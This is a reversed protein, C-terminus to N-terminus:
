PGEYRAEDQGLRSTPSGVDKSLVPTVLKRVGVITVFIIEPIQAIAFGMLIGIYGGVYGVLAQFDVEKKQVILKFRPSLVRIVICWWNDWYDESFKLMENLDLTEDETEGVELELSDIERCPRLAHSELAFRFRARKMEEKTKCINWCTCNTPQDPTKCGVSDLHQKLIIDDYNKWNPICNNQNFKYRNSVATMGKINFSLWYNSINDRKSWQRLISHYASFTQNPYHYLAVFSGAQPRVKEPFIDRKMYLRVFLVNQNILEIGFCKVFKGWSEFSHTQHIRVWQNNISQTWISTGNGLKMELSIVHESINTTVKGYDIKTMNEQYYEGLLFKQYFADSLNPGFINFHKSDFSQDFCFSMVPPFDDESEFYSRTEIVSIDEDRFYRQFWEQVYYITVILCGVKFIYSFTKWHTM